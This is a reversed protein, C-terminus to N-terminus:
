RHREPWRVREFPWTESLWRRLFEALDSELGDNFAKETVWFELRVDHPEDTPFLYVCGLSRSGDDALLMYCFASRRRFSGHCWGMEVVDEELTLGPPWVWEWDTEYRKMGVELHERNELFCQFDRLVHRLTMVELHWGADRVVSPVPYGAPVLTNVGGTRDGLTTSNSYRRPWQIRDFQWVEDLWRGLFSVLQRELGADFSAATVWFDVRVQYPPAAPLLYVCGVSRTGEETLLM